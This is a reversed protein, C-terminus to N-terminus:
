LGELSYYDADPCEDLMKKLRLSFSHYFKAVENRYEAEKEIFLVGTQELECARLRLLLKQPLLDLQNQEFVCGLQETRDAIKRISSGTYFNNIAFVDFSKAYDADQNDFSTYRQQNVPLKEDFEDVFLDRLFTHFYPERLSFCHASADQVDKLEDKIPEHVKVPVIRLYDSPDTGEIFCPLLEDEEIWEALEEPSPLEVHQEAQDEELERVRHVLQATEYDLGELDALEKVKRRHEDVEQEMEKHEEFFLRKNLSGDPDCKKLIKGAKDIFKLVREDDDDNGFKRSAEKMLAYYKEVDDQTIAGTSLGHDLITRIRKSRRESSKRM